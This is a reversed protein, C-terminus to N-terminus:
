RKPWCDLESAAACTRRISTCLWTIYADRWSVFGIVRDAECAVLTRSEFFEEGAAVQAMPRFARPDVARELEYPRARDHVACVAPWDTEVYARVVPTNM